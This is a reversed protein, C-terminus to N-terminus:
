RADGAVARVPHLGQLTRYIKRHENKSGEAQGQLGSPVGSPMKMPNGIVANVNRLRYHDDRASTAAPKLCIHSAPRSFSLPSKVIEHAGQGAQRRGTLLPM